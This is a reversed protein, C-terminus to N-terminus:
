ESRAERLGASGDGEGTNNSSGADRAEDPLTIELGANDDGSRVVRKVVIANFEEGVRAHFERIGNLFSEFGVDELMAQFDRWFFKWGQGGVFREVGFIESKEAAADNEAGLECAQADDKIAGIAGSVLEARFKEARQACIDDGDAGRRVAAVDVGAAAREM